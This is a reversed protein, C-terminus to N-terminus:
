LHGGEGGRGRGPGHGQRLLLDPLNPTSFFVLFELSKPSGVENFHGHEEEFVAGAANVVMLGGEEVRTEFDAAIIRDYHRQLSPRSMSCRHPGEELPNHVKRCQPCFRDGCKHPRERGKKFLLRCEPCKEYRCCVLCFRTKSSVLILM